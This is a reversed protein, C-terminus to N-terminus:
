KKRVVLIGERVTLMVQEVRPDARVMQNFEHLSKRVPDDAAYVLSCLANDAMILGGDALMEMGAQYYMSYNVKDADLFVIDYKEGRAVMDKVAQRADAHVITIKRGYASADFCEQAIDVCKKDAEITVVEGGDVVGEAFSLAGYGTFTGVELVRKARLAFAMTTLFQGEIQGVMCPAFLNEEYTRRVIREYDESAPTTMACSYEEAGEHFLSPHPFPPAVATDVFVSSESSKAGLRSSTARENRQAQHSAVWEDYSTYEALETSGGNMDGNTRAEADNSVAANGMTEAINQKVTSPDELGVDHCHAEIGLGARPYSECINRYETLTKELRERSLENLYGCRGLSGKPLPACLNGGRKSTVKDQAAAIIGVNDLIPHVLSLGCVSMLKLIRHLEDESIWNQVFSLYASYGMGIAVAHGHLLGAQLEFGPSWTHGYAHPRTQVCEAMNMYESRVYADMAKAVISESLGDLEDDGPPCEVGFKTELLKNGAKELLEFLSYDKVVAMKIIEAIGHRIWGKKLTRFFSRDTLTLIPPHYAGFVNKYGLGDCCTRPSPGADIGSVISTCLMVYPTNRHYLACAFGGVDSMVGGGVILVPENRSIQLRKLDVLIKEVTSIDKDVEMCRYSLKEFTIDHVLFYDALANGYLNDVHEDIVCVCRGLPKYIERLHHKEPNLVDKVIMVTTTITTNMVGEIMSSDETSSIHGSSQRYISTPYIAHPDNELLHDMNDEYLARTDPAAHEGILVHKMQLGAFDKDDLVRDAFSKWAKIAAGDGHNAILKALVGVLQGCPINYCYKLLKLSRLDSLGVHDTSFESAVSSHFVATRTAEILLSHVTSLQFLADLSDKLKKGGSFPHKEADLAALDAAVGQSFQSFRHQQFPSAGNAFYNVAIHM